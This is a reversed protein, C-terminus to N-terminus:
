VPGGFTDCQDPTGYKFGQLFWKQRQASSGHTWSEPNVGGSTAKQIRDDGVAAAANLADAIQADTPPELLGTRGSANDAWVGAYCDAQLEIRVSGGQPGTRGPQVARLTGLLDQVHHGYEHAIVYAQALPGAAARRVQTRLEDFFGLDIYVHKDEPCYFPGVDTIATGCGTQASDSFFRTTAPCTRAPREAPVRGDLVGARQERLRPHPLGRQRQCRRRDPM